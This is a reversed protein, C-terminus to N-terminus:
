RFSGVDLTRELGHIAIFPTNILLIAQKGVSRGHDHSGPMKDKM